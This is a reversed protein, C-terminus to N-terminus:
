PGASIRFLTGSSGYSLLYIEGDPDQCFNSVSFPADLLVSTSWTGAGDQAAAWVLGSCYDAYLYRGYLDSVQTGRHRFGGIVACGLSHEYELIPLTLGGPNCGVPPDYCHSGEMLRWGYNEGGASGAPQFDIEEREEQGVDGIFMDGTLRDFTFRWPNRLGYAWIEPRAGAVGV